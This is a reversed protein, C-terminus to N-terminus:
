LPQVFVSEAFAPLIIDPQGGCEPQQQRECWKMRRDTIQKLCRFGSNSVTYGPCRRFRFACNRFSLPYWLVCVAPARKLFVSLSSVKRCICCFVAQGTCRIYLRGSVACIDCTQLSRWGSRREAIGAANGGDGEKGPEKRSYPHKQAPDGSVAPKHAIDPCFASRYCIVM